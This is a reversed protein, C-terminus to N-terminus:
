SVECDIYSEACSYHRKPKRLINQHESIELNLKDIKLSVVPKIGAGELEDSKERITNDLTKM